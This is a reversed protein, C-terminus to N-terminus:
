KMLRKSYIPYGFVIHHMTYSQRRSDLLLSSGNNTPSISRMALSILCLLKGVLGGIGIVFMSGYPDYEQHPRHVDHQIYKSLSTDVSAEWQFYQQETSRIISQEFDSGHFWPPLLKLGKVTRWVSSKPNYQTSRKHALGYVLVVLPLSLHWIHRILPAQPRPEIEWWLM